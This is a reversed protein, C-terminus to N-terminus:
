IIEVTSLLTYDDHAGMSVEVLRPWMSGRVGEELTLFTTNNVHGSVRVVVDSGKCAKLHAVLIEVVKNVDIM